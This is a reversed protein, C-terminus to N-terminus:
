LVRRYFLADRIKHIEAVAFDIPFLDVGREAFDSERARSRYFKGTTVLFVQGVNDFAEVQDKRSCSAARNPRSRTGSVANQPTRRSNRLASTATRTQTWSRSGQRAVNRTGPKRQTSNTLSSEATETQM